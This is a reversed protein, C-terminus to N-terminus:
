PAANTPAPFDAELLRAEAGADGPHRRPHSPWGTPRAPWSTRASNPTACCRWRARACRPLGAPRDPPPRPEHPHSPLRVAHAPRGAFAPESTGLRAPGGVGPTRGAPAGPELKVADKETTVVDATDAPWPLPPLLRPPRCRCAPLHGPGAGGAHLSRSRGAMGAAALLPTGRLRHLLAPWRGPPQGGALRGAALCATSTRTGICGPLATSAAAANYLVLRTRGLAPLTRALARRAAAATAPAANTSCWCPWTATCALHQLGDDAVLVDVEPIPRRVAGPRGAARDRGGVGARRHAAPDAAARRGSRQPKSDPSPACRPMGAMAAPSSAPRWGAAAPRGRGDGHPRAPAAQWWTAWWWCPVPLPRGALGPALRRHLCCAGYLWPCRSCCGRWGPWARPRVVPGAAAATPWAMRPRRWRAM